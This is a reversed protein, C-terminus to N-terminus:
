LARRTELIGKKKGSANRARQEDAHRAWAMAAQGDGASSRRGTGLTTDPLLRRARREYEWRGRASCTHSVHSPVALTVPRVPTGFIRDAAPLLAPDDMQEPLQELVYQSWRNWLHQPKTGKKACRCKDKCFIYNANNCVIFHQPPPSTRRWGRTGMIKSSYTIGAGRDLALTQPRCSPVHEHATPYNQQIRRARSYYRRRKPVNRAKTSSFFNFIQDTSERPISFCAHCRYFFGTTVPYLTKETSAIQAVTSDSKSTKMAPKLHIVATTSQAKSKTEQSNEFGAM